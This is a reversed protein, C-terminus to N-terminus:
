LKVGLEELNTNFIKDGEKLESKVKDYLKQVTSLGDKSTEVIAKLPTNYGLTSYEHNNGYVISKECYKEIKKMAKKRQMLNLSSEVISSFQTEFDIESAKRLFKWGNEFMIQAYNNETLFNKVREEIEDNEFRIDHEGGWGDDNFYGVKKGDFYVDAFLGNLDHGFGTKVKKLSFHGLVELGKKSNLIKNTM